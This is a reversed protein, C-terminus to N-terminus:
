TRADTAESTGEHARVLVALESRTTIELKAFIHGLHTKVTALSVYLREAIQPNTLHDGILRAVQLESPTLSEWGHVAAVHPARTRLASRVVEDFAAGDATGSPEGGPDRLVPEASAIGLRRREAAAASRLRQAADAAGRRRRHFAVEDLADCVGVANGAEVHRGLADQAFGEAAADDVGRLRRARALLGHAHIWTLDHEKAIGTAEALAAEDDFLVGRFVLPVAVWRRMRSGRAVAVARTLADEAEDIELLADHALGLVTLGLMRFVPDENAADALAIAEVALAAAEDPSGRLVLQWADAGAAFVAASWHGAQRADEYTRAGLRHADDLRGTAVALLAALASTLRATRGDGAERALTMAEDLLRRPEDPDSQFMRALCFAWALNTYGWADAGELSLRRVRTFDSRAAEASVALATGAARYGLARGIYWKDGAAGATELLQGARVVVSDFNGTWTDLHCLGELLRSRVLPELEPADLATELWVRCESWQSSELWFTGMAGAIRALSDDDGSARSWALAATINDQDALLRNMWTAQEPGDLLPVAHEVLDRFYRVFGARAHEADGSAELKDVAYARATDSLRYWGSPAHPDFAVLSREVLAALDELTSGEAIAAASAADFGSVFLSLRQLIERQRDSLLDYSWDLSARLTAHRSDGTQVGNGLLEFRRVLGAAIEGVTLSRTRAAALEIALPLGDLGRCLDAVAAAEGDGFSREPDAAAARAAFLATADEDNMPPVAWTVEGALGLPRQSTALVRLGPARDLLADAFSAVDEVVHECGDLVLLTEGRPLAGAVAYAIPSGDEPEGVGYLEAVRVGVRAGRDLSGIDAIAREAPVVRSAELALRSKGIGGPGVLTLIRTVGLLEVVRRVESARGVFSTRPMRM